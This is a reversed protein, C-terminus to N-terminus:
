ISSSAAQQQSSLLRRCHCGVGARRRDPQHRWREYRLSRSRRPLQEIDHRHVQPKAGRPATTQRASVYTTETRGQAGSRMTRRALGHEMSSCTTYIHILFIIMSQIMHSREKDSCIHSEEFRCRTKDSLSFVARISPGLPEGSFGASAGLGPARRLAQVVTLKNRGM